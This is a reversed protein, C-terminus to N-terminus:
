PKRVALYGSKRLSEDFGLSVYPSDIQNIDPRVVAVTSPGPTGHERVATKLEYGKRLEVCARRVGGGQLSEDLRAWVQACVSVGVPCVQGVSVM